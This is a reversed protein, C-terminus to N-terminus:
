KVYLVGTFNNCTNCLSYKGTGRQLDDYPLHKLEWPVDTSGIFDEGSFARASLKNFASRPPIHEFSLDDFYKGCLACIGPHKKAM